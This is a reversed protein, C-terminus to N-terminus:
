PVESFGPFALVNNVQNPNDSRGTAVVRVGWEKALDYPIEPTPNALAFIIPDSEDISGIRKYTFESCFCRHIYGVRGDCRKFIRNFWISKNFKAISEKVPNMGQERGEYIIGTSDCM